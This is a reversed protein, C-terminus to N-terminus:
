RPSLVALVPRHRAGSGDEGTLVSFRDVRWATGVLVHDIPMALVPPLATPWTGVSAAGRLAAADRCGGIGPGGFHDLTANLDGVVIARPNRCLGAVGAIEAQWLRNGGAAPIAAHLAGIVPPGAVSPRVVTWSDPALAWPADARYRGAATAVLVVTERSGRDIAPVASVALGAARFAPLYDAGNVAPAIEPLVVVDAHERAALRAMTSPPVLDGNINWSLIRVTGARPAGPAEMAWGRLAAPVLGVVGAVVLAAGVPLAVPRARRAAAILLLLVGAALMAAVEADRPAVLAAVVPLRGLGVVGAVQLAVAAVLVVAGLLLGSRGRGDASRGPRRRRHVSM